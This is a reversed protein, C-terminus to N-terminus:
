TDEPEAAFNRHRMAGGIKNRNVSRFHLHVGFMGASDDLKNLDESLQVADKVQELDFNGKQAFTM